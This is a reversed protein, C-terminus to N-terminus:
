EGLVLRYTYKAYLRSSEKILAKTNKDHMANRLSSNLSSRIEREFFAKM